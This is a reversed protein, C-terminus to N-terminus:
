QVQDPSPYNYPLCVNHFDQGNQPFFPPYRVKGRKLVFQWTTMVALLIDNAGRVTVLLQRLFSAARKKKTLDQEAATGAIDDSGTAPGSTSKAMAKERELDADWEPEVIGALLWAMRRTSMPFFKINPPTNKRVLKQNRTASM